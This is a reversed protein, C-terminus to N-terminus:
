TPLPEDTRINNAKRFRRDHLLFVPLAVLSVALSDILNRTNNKSWDNDTSAKQAEIRAKLDDLEVIIKTNPEIPRDPKSYYLSYMDYYNYRLPVSFGAVTNISTSFSYFFILFAVISIVFFYFNPVTFTLDKQSFSSTRKWFFYFFASSFIFLIAHQWIGALDN